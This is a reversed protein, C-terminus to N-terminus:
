FHCLTTRLGYVLLSSWPGVREDIIQQTHGYYTEQETQVGTEEVTFPTVINRGYLDQLFYVLDCM